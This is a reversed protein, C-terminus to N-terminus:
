MVMVGELQAPAVAAAAAWGNSVVVVAVTEVAASAATSFTALLHPAHARWRQAASAAPVLYCPRVRSASSPSASARTTRAACVQQASSTISEAVRGLGQLSLWGTLVLVWSGAFLAVNLAGDVPEFLIQGKGNSLSM